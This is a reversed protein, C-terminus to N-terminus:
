SCQVWSPGKDTEWIKVHGASVVGVGALRAVKWELCGRRIKRSVWWTHLGNYLKLAQFPREWVAEEARLRYEIILCQLFKTICIYSTHRSSLCYVCTVRSLTHCNRPSSRLKAFSVVRLYSNPLLNSWRTNFYSTCYLQISTARRWRISDDSTYITRIDRKKGDEM